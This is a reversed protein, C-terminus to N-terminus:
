NQSELLIKSLENFAETLEVLMRQRIGEDRYDFVHTKSKTVKISNESNGITVDSGKPIYGGFVVYRQGHWETQNVQVYLAIQIRPAVDIDLNFRVRLGKPEDPFKEFDLQIPDFDPSYYSVAEVGFENGIQRASSKYIEALDRWPKVMTSLESGIYQMTESHRIRIDEVRKRFIGASLTNEANKIKDALGDYTGPEPDKKWNELAMVFETVNIRFRPDVSVASRIIDNLISPRKIKRGCDTVSKQSLEFDTIGHPEYGFIMAWLIRGLSYVDSPRHDSSDLRGRLFEPARYSISGIMEHDETLREEEDPSERLELSLGFDSVDMMLDDNHLINEPKLDRHALRKLHLQEIIRAIEIGYTVSMEGNDSAINPLLDSLNGKYWPMTFYGLEEMNNIKVGTLLKEPLTPNPTIIPIGKIGKLAEMVRVERVFRLYRTPTDFRRFVKIAIQDGSAATARYVWSNGGKAHFSVDPWKSQLIRLVDSHELNKNKNM